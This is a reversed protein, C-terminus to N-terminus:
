KRDLAHPLYAGPLGFRRDQEHLIRIAELQSRVPGRLSQPLMTRRDKDGKGERVTIENRDLDIDKVRLELLESLRLGAGYLLQAMLRGTGSMSDLLRGTEDRSLVNPLRRSRQAREVGIIEPLPIKLVDRYLFLLASFAVNQTSAAVNGECALHSLFARIEPVGINAPNRNGHFGVYRRIVGLYTQETRYSLHRLRLVERCADYLDAPTTISM